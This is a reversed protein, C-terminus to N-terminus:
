GDDIILTMNRGNKNFRLQYGVFLSSAFITCSAVISEILIQGLDGILADNRNLKYLYLGWQCRLGLIYM